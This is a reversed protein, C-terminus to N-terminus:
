SADAMIAASGTMYYATLKGVLMLLSVLLSAGMVIYRIDVATTGLYGPLFYELEPTGFLRERHHSVLTLFDCIELM